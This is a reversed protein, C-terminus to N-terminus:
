IGLVHDPILPKCAAKYVVFSNLNGNLVEGGDPQESDIVNFAGVLVITAYM